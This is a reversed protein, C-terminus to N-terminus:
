KTPSGDDAASPPANALRQKSRNWAADLEALSRTSLDAGLEQEVGAFRQRFRDITSRLAMEPEARLHRALNCISFLLDGLEAAISERDGGAIAGDLERLEEDIKQRPGHADPWDFGIRAAKEGIRYAALLAPLSAPVGDLVGKKAGAATEQQKMREWNAFAQAAGDVRQDGFVHPHRRVLKDAVAAAVDAIAFGGAESSIQAIMGVNMLVDGLEECAHRADGRRLAEVAEFAEELLHPAMSATTQQRDWPCGDPARLHAIVDLLRRLAALADDAMRLLSVWYCPVPM